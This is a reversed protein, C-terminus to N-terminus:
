EDALKLRTREAQVLADLEDLLAADQRGVCHVLM